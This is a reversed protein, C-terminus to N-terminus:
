SLQILRLDIRKTVANVKEVVVHVRDGIKYTRGTRQGVLLHKNEMFRYLDDTLTSIHVLGDIYLDELEVFLGFSVVGSVIASYREGVRDIMFTVKKWDILEREAAEANRERESTQEALLHLFQRRSVRAEDTSREWTRQAALTRHVILDPYRRIPSTFHLYRRTALGFHLGPSNSYYARMMSRLIIRQLADAEPQGSLSRLLHQIDKPTIEEFPQPLSYGFTRLVADLEDLKAPDPRDHLRFLTPWDKEVLFNAVAENAALMFEEIILHAMNKETPKIGTMEGTDDFLIIPEPLDFDLSGREERRVRLLDCLDKMLIFQELLDRHKQKQQPDGGLCAAVTRYTLRRDSRIVARGLHSKLIRGEPDFEMRCTQCLRDKEPKLSCIETSLEEPLMHIAREPFYVSTGRERAELDLPSDEPVYHSVDAIHVWLTFCGNKERRVSIADDFDRATEGDITVTKLSRLDERHRLDEASISRAARRAAERVESPFDDRLGYKRIIIALDLGPDDPFGLVEVIQGEPPTRLRSRLIEVGVVMGTEAETPQRSPIRVEEYPESGYPVVVRRGGSIRLVGTIRHRSPELVRTIRGEIRGGSKQATVQVMVRDRHLAGGMNRRRVYIDPGDHADLVVFGYGDRHSSLRGTMLRKETTLMYRNGKLRKLTGEDLLSRLLLRFPEQADKRIRFHDMLHRASVPTSGVGAMHDLLEQRSVGATKKRARPLQKERTLVTCAVM